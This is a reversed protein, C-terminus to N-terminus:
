VRTSVLAGRRNDRLFINSLKSLFKIKAKCFSPRAVWTSSAAENPECTDVIALRMSNNSSFSVIFTLAKGLGELSPYVACAKIAM